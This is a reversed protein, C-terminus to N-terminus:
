SRVAMFRNEPEIVKDNLFTIYICQATYLLRKETLMIGMLDM